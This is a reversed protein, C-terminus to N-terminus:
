VAGAGPSGKRLTAPGIAPWDIDILLSPISCADRKYTLMNSLMAPSSCSVVIAKTGLPILNVWLFPAMIARNGLPSSLSTFALACLPAGEGTLGGTSGVGGADVVRDFVVDLVAGAVLCTEKALLSMMRSQPTLERVGEASCCGAPYRVSM